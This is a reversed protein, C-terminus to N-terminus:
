AVDDEWKYEIAKMPQADYGYGGNLRPQRIAELVEAALSGIEVNVQRPLLRKLLSGFTAPEHIALRELYGVLDGKGQGDRGINRAAQVISEMVMRPLKNGVGKPRGTIRVQNGPLFRGANDVHGNHDAHDV